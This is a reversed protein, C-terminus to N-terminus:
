NLKSMVVQLGPFNEELQPLDVWLVGHIHGAGRLQFEVRYHYFETCMPSSEPMIIKKIFSHVRKDFNMTINLVNSRVLDHLNDNSLYDKLLVEKDGQVVWIEDARYNYPDDILQFNAPHKRYIIQLGKQRLISVFNEDWRKDACSLTFFFQFPGLQELKALVEYQKNGIGLLAQYM